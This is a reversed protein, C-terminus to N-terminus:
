QAKCFGAATTAVSTAFPPDALSTGAYVVIKGTADKSAECIVPNLASAECEAKGIQIFTQGGLNAGAPYTKILNWNFSRGYQGAVLSCTVTCTGSSTQSPPKTSPDCQSDAVTSGGVTCTVPRTQPVKSGATCSSASQWTGTQWTGSYSVDGKPMIIARAFYRTSQAQAPMAAAMATMSAMAALIMKFRM